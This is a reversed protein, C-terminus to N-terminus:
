YQTKSKNFEICKFHHCCSTVQLYVSSVQHESLLFLWFTINKYIWVFTKDYIIKQRVCHFSLRMNLIMFHYVNWQKIERSLVSINHRVKWIYQLDRSTWGYSAITLHCTQTDLPFLKLNMPCALTLSVRPTDHWTEGGSLWVSQWGWQRPWTQM